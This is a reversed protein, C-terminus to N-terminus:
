ASQWEVLASWMRWCVVNRLRRVSLSQPFVVARKLRLERLFVKSAHLLAVTESQFGEVFDGYLRQEDSSGM